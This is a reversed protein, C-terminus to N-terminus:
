VDGCAGERTRAGTLDRRMPCERPTNGACERVLGRLTAQMACLQAMTEEIRALPDEARRKGDASARTEGDEM